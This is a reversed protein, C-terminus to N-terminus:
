FVALPSLANIPADQLALRNVPCARVEFRRPHILHAAPIMTANVVKNFVSDDFGLFFKIFVVFFVPILGKGVTKDV